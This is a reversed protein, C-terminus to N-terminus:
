FNFLGRLSGGRMLERWGWNQEHSTGRKSWDVGDSALQSMKFWKFLRTSTDQKEDLNSCRRTKGAQGEALSRAKSCTTVGAREGALTRRAPVTPQIGVGNPRSEDHAIAADIGRRQEERV